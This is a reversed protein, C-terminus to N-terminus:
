HGLFPRIVAMRRATQSAGADEVRDSSGMIGVIARSAIWRLPEPEWKRVPHNVWPQATLETERGLILDALTRGSISTAAVGHGSYGGAFALGTARDHTVSMSWDRPVGLAGGWHHTIAAGRTAPFASHLTGTLRAKVGEHREYREDVPSGLGYPAGRGGIAIRNDATRQAYFFLHHADSITECGRWGLEDWIADSLPETAIMLSYLPLYTRAQHKFEVTFAETARVVHQARVTGHETVVRGQELFQAATQEYIVGGKREVAEALGRALRAPNVRAGHPSFYALRADTIAVREAIEAPGLAWVDREGWGWQRHHDVYDRIRQEQAATRAVSLIGGKVFGCDIREQAVREGIWDVADWTVRESRRVAEAGSHKAWEDAVGAIGASVWGGNRGSAGFGAIEREIVRVRLTPDADLLAYATWLGTMGAGVIAVDCDTDGQLAPRPTLPGPFTDLWLSRDRIRQEDFSM